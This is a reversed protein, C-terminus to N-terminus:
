GFVVVRLVLVHSPFGCNHSSDRHLLRINESHTEGALLLELLKQSSAM